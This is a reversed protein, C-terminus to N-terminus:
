QFSVNEANLKNDPIQNKKPLMFGPHIISLVLLVLLMPFADFIYAFVSHNFIFGGWGDAYEVLRFINRIFFLACLCYFTKVASIWSYRSDTAIMNESQSRKRHYAIILSLFCVFSILQIVFGVIILATGLSRSTIFELVIGAVQLGFSVIDGLIFFTTTVNFNIHILQRAETRKLLKGFAVYVSAAIFIPAIIAQVTQTGNGQNKTAYATIELIGGVILWFMFWTRKWIMM